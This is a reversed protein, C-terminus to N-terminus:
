VRALDQGGPTAPMPAPEGIDRMTRLPSFVV